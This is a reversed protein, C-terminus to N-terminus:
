QTPDHYEGKSYKISFNAAYADDIYLRSLSSRRVHCRCLALVSPPDPREAQITSCSKGGKPNVQSSSRAPSRRSQLIQTRRTVRVVSRGQFCATTDETIIEQM